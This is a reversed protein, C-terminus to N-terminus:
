KVCFVKPMCIHYHYLGSLEQLFQSILAAAWPKDEDIRTSFFCDCENVFLVAPMNFRAQLKCYANKDSKNQALLMLCYETGASRTYQFSQSPM